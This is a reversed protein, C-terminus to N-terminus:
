EARLEDFLASTFAEDGLPRGVRRDEDSEPTETYADDELDATLLGPQLRTIISAGTFESILLAPDGISLGASELMGYPLEHDMGDRDTETFQVKRGDTSKLIGHISEEGPVAPLSVMATQTADCLWRLAKQDATSPGSLRELGAPDLSWRKLLAMLEDELRQGQACYAHAAEADGRRHLVAASINLRSYLTGAGALRSNSHRTFRIGQSLVAQNRLTRLPAERAPGDPRFAHVIDRWGM